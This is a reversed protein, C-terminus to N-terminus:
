IEMMSKVVLVKIQNQSCNELQRSSLKSALYNKACKLSNAIESSKKLLTNPLKLLDRRRFCHSRQWVFNESLFCHSQVHTM